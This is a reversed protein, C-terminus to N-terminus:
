RRMPLTLRPPGEPNILWGTEILILRECITGKARCEAVPKPM